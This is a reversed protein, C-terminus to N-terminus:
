HLRAQPRRPDDARVPVPTRAHLPQALRALLDSLLGGLGHRAKTVPARDSQSMRLAQRALADETWDRPASEPGEVRCPYRFTLGDRQVDVRGEFHGKAADYRVSVVKTQM